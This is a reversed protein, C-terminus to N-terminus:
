VRSSEVRAPTTDKISVKEEPVKGAVLTQEVIIDAKDKSTNQYDRDFYLIRLTPKM